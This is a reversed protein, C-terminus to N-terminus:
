AGFDEQASLYDDARGIDFWPEHVPYAVTRHGSDRLRDFLVPMDCAAGPELLQLSSPDLVYVGANVQSQGVPKEEFGVVDVGDTHVVGFPHRWEHQRVAMTAVAGNEQHFKLMESYRIASLVDGNTVVFPLEPLPDLQSLGGVTGLATEERLYSIELDKASGDGFHDEIVDGLYRIALVFRRFGGAVARDIIHDLIPRGAVPLMPKPTRETLPRLRVGEGGAMIVMINPHEVPRALDSWTLLGVIRRDGDIIPVANIRRESMLRRVEVEAFDPTVFFSEREVLDTISDNLGTGDLIGRRIDGDTLTGILRGEEDSALVIQLHSEDLCRIAQEVTSEVPLVARVWGPDGSLGTM